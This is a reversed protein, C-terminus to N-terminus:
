KKVEEKFIKFHEMAKEQTDFIFRCCVKSFNPKCNHDEGLKNMKNKFEEDNELKGGHYFNVIASNKRPIIALNFNPDIDNNSAYAKSWNTFEGPNEERLKQIAEERLKFRRAKSGDISNLIKRKKENISSFPRMIPSFDLEFGNDTKYILSALLWINLPTNENLWRVFDKIKEDADETLLIADVCNKEYCYYLIKSTHVSDLWGAADQAEIVAFTKNDGDKITLDVRKSDFTRDESIIKYDDELEMGIVELLRTAVDVNDAIFKTYRPETGFAEKISSRDM